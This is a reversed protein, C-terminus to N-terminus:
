SKIIGKSAYIPYIHKRMEPLISIFWLGTILSIIACSILTFSIGIGSALSGAAMSAIPSMGMLAMAYFSMVRGRMKEEALTQLLINISAIASIICFGALLAFPMALITTKVFSLGGISLSFLLINIAIAKGLGLVNKRSALYIAGIFAGAGTASMLLGYTNSSGKLIEKTYAPMLTTFPTGILSVLALLILLIKIPKFGFTYKLGQKFEERMTNKSVSQEKKILRIKYLSVIIAVYSLTNLLFCTGEGATAIVIGAIAPGILRAGNYMASNLAIANGLKEKNDILDIVLAQRAPADFASILGFVVSLTIIHWIQVFDTIVLFALLSAQILFFIQTLLMIRHRNYRDTIVGAFPSLIFSPIQNTFGIFGLLFKSGTLRYILWGMAITQM